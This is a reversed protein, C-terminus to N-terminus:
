PSNGGAVIAVQALRGPEARQQAYLGIASSFFTVLTLLLVVRRPSLGLAVLRHHIHGLDPEYFPRGARFRRVLAFATDLIPILLPCLLLLVSWQLTNADALAGWLHAQLLVSIVLVGSEGLYFKAPARNWWHFALLAPFSVALLGLQQAGPAALTFAGLAILGISSALNDLGDILNLANALCVYFLTSFLLSEAASLPTFALPPLSWSLCFGIIAQHLLKNKPSLEKLDDWLGLLAALSLSALIWPSLGGLSLDMLGVVGTAGSLVGAWLGLGGLSIARSEPRRYDVPSRFYAAWKTESVLFLTFFSVSFALVAATLLVMSDAMRAGGSLM